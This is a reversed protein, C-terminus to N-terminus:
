ENESSKWNILNRTKASIEIRRACRSAGNQSCNTPLRCDKGTTTMLWSFQRFAFNNLFYKFFNWQVLTKVNRPPIVRKMDGLNMHELYAMKLDFKLNGNMTHVCLDCIKSFSNLCPSKMCVEPQVSISNDHVLFDEEDPEFKRIHRSKLYSGVGVLNLYNYIASEMIHRNHRIKPGAHLNPSLNVEMLHLKLKADILFDFRYMEFFHHKGYRAKKSDIRDIIVLEQAHVTSQICDEVQDYIKQPDEGRDKLYMDFADKFTYGREFYHKIAPFEFGPTFSDSIVYSDLESFDNPNYPLKCVRVYINKAYYYVRLPDVSTIVVYINFDFKHGDLLFPDEVFVQAFYKKGDETMPSMDIQSINKLTVGRNTTRKEVFRVEPNNRAFNRLNTENLFGRPIYKSLTRTSLISKSTLRYNGPIHNVKQYFELKSFNLLSLHSDLPEFSWLFDWDYHLTEVSSADIEITKLGLKILIKEVSELVKPNRSKQHLWAIRTNDPPLLEKEAEEERLEQFRAVLNANEQPLNPSKHELVVNIIYAFILVILVRQWMNLPEM